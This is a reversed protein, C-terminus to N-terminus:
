QPMRLRNSLEAYIPNSVLCSANPMRPKEIDNKVLVRCRQGPGYWANNAIAVNFLLDLASSPSLLSLAHYLGM